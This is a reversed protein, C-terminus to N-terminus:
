FMFRVVHLASCILALSLLFAQLMFLSPSTVSPTCWANLYLEACAQNDITCRGVMLLQWVVEQEYVSRMKNWSTTGVQFNMQSWKIYCLAWLRHIQFYLYLQGQVPKSIGGLAGSPQPEWFKLIIPMYLHCSKWDSAGTAKLEMSSGQCENRNSASDIGLGYHRVLLDIFFRSSELRLKKQLKEKTWKKHKM